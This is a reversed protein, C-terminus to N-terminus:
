YLEQRRDRFVPIAGRAAAVADLDCDATLLEEGGGAQALTEGWPSLVTSEGGCDFAASNCNVVFMQNEIARGTLLAHLHGLRAKGWQSPVFLVQAGSLALKRTLEPFRLDYCIILACEVNDLAFRCVTDGATFREQEGSPSFLHTKDYSAVCNGARDFVYATNYIKGGRLNAVSGAVINVGKERALAGIRRKTEEGDRDCLVELGDRPFFGTNWMEPLVLVDGKPATRVLRGATRFNEETKGLPTDMQLCVIKM